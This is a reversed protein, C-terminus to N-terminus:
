ACTGYTVIVQDTNTVTWENDNAVEPQLLMDQCDQVTPNNEPNQTLGIFSSDGCDNIGPANGANNNTSMLSAGLANQAGKKRYSIAMSLAPLLTILLANNLHMTASSHQTHRSTTINNSLQHIPQSPRSPSSPISVANKQVLFSPLKEAM